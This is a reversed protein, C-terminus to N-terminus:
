THSRANVPLPRCVLEAADATKNDGQDTVAWGGAALLTAFAFAGLDLVAWAQLLPAFREGILLSDSTAEEEQYAHFMKWGKVLLAEADEITGSVATGASLEALATLMQEIDGDFRYWNGDTMATGALCALDPRATALQSGLWPRFVLAQVGAEPTRSELDLLLHTLDYDDDDDDTAMLHVPDEGRAAARTAQSLGEDLRRGLSERNWDPAGNWRSRLRDFSAASAVPGGLIIRVEKGDPLLQLHGRRVPRFPPGLAVDGLLAARASVAELVLRDTVAPALGDLWALMSAPERVRCGGAAETCGSWVFPFGCRICTRQGGKNSLVRRLQVRASNPSTM